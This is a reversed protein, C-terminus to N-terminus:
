QKLQSAVLRILIHISNLAWHKWTNKRQASNDIGYELMTENTVYSDYVLLYINPTSLPKRSGVLEILKNGTDTSGPAIKVSDEPALQIASNAIFFVVIVFYMFKRGLRNYIIWGVLFIASFLVLQIILSGQRFWSFVDSLSAMNTITFTFALGLIMLTKTLGVVGFLAPIVIILLISFVVFVALVYLSGLPSLVDQNNLIYQVVPTLPLLILILDSVYLKETSNGFTLKNGKKIKFLVFLVLCLGAALLLSFKWAGDTFVTNVNPSYRPLLQSVFCSFSVFYVTLVVLSIPLHMWKAELIYAKIASWGVTM